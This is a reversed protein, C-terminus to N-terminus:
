KGEEVWVEGRNKIRKFLKGKSLSVEEVLGGGMEWYKGQDGM